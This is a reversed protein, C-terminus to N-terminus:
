ERAPWPVRYWHPLGALVVGTVLGVFGGGFGGFGALVFGADQESICIFYCDTPQRDSSTLAVLVGPTVGILMGILASKGVIGAGRQGRRRLVTLDDRRGLVSSTGDDAVVTLTDRAVHRVVGRAVLANGPQAVVRVTDGVVLPATSVSMACASTLVALIPPAVRLCHSRLWRAPYPPVLRM